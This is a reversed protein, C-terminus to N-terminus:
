KRSRAEPRLYTETTLAYCDSASFLSGCFISYRINFASPYSFKSMRFEKNSMQYEFHPFNTNNLLLPWYGTALLWCGAALQWCGPALSSPCRVTSM